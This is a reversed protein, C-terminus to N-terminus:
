NLRLVPSPITRVPLARSRCYLFGRHPLFFALAARGMALLISSLLCLLARQKYGRECQGPISKATSSPAARWVSLCLPLIFAFSGAEEQYLVVQRAELAGPSGTGGVGANLDTRYTM